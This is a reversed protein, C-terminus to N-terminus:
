DVKVTVDDDQSLEQMMLRDISDQNKGTLARWYVAKKGGLVYEV